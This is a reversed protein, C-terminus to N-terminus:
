RARVPVTVTISSKGINAPPPPVPSARQALSVAERDLAANGSSRILRASLVRGARDITFAVSSTGGGGGPYRKRRNLHAMVMGRWTAVSMSSSIGAAAAANTKAKAAPIPKPAATVQVKKSAKQRKNPETKKETPPTKPEETKEPETPAAANVPLVAEADPNEELKPMEPDTIAKEVAEDKPMDRPTDPEVEQHEVPKESRESETSAESMVSEPGVAVELPPTDPAVPLPSFEIMVAAPLEAAELPPQPWYFIALAIGVHAAAVFSAASTWRALERRLPKSSGYPHPSAAVV